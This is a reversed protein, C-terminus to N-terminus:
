VTDRIAHCQGRCEAREAQGGADEVETLGEAGPANEEAPAFAPQAAFGEGEARPEGEGGCDGEERPRPAKSM